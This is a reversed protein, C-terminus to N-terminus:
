WSHQLGFVHIDGEHCLVIAWAPPLHKPFIYYNTCGIQVQEKCVSPLERLCAFVPQTIGWTQPIDWNPEPFIIVEHENTNHLSDIIRNLTIESYSTVSAHQQGFYSELSATLWSGPKERQIKELFNKLTKELTGSLNEM